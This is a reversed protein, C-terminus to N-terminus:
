FFLNFVYHHLGQVEYHREYSCYRLRRLKALYESDFDEDILILQYRWLFGYESDDANMVYDSDREYRVAPWKMNTSSPEQGYAYLRKPPEALGELLLQLSQQSGAM